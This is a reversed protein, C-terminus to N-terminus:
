GGPLLTTAYYRRPGKLCLTVKQPSILQTKDLRHTQVHVNTERLSSCLLIANAWARPRHRM